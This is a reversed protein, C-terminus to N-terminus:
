LLGKPVIEASLSPAPATCKVVETCAPHHLPRGEERRDEATVEEGFAPTGLLMGPKTEIGAGPYKGSYM